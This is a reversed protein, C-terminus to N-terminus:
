AERTYQILVFENKLNIIGVNDGVSTLNISNAASIAQEISDFKGKISATLDGSAM